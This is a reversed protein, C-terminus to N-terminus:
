CSSMVDICLKLDPLIDMFADENHLQFIAEVWWKQSCCAEVIDNVKTVVQHLDYPLLEVIENCTTLKSLNEKIIDLTTKFETNV